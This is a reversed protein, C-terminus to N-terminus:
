LLKDHCVNTIIVTNVTFGRLAWGRILAWGRKLAGGILEGQLRSFKSLLAGPILPNVTHM